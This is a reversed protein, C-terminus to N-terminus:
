GKEVVCWGLSVSGLPKPNAIGVTKAWERLFRGPRSSVVSSRLTRSMECEM